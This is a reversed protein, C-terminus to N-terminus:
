PECPTTLSSIGRISSAMSASLYITWALFSRAPVRHKCLTLTSRGILIRNGSQKRADVAVM